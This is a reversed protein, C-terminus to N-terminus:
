KEGELATELLFKEFKKSLREFDGSELRVIGIGYNPSDTDFCFETTLCKGDEKVMKWFNRPFDDEFPGDQYHNIDHIAVYKSMNGYFKWDLYGLFATHDGDLLIFDFPAKGYLDNRLAYSHSSDHIFTIKEAEEETMFKRHSWPFKFGPIHKEHDIIDVTIVKAGCSALRAATNGMYTGIELINKANLERCFDVMKELELQNQM